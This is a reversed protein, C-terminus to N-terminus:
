GGGEGGAGEAEAAVRKERFTTYKTSPTYGTMDITGTKGELNPIIFQLNAIKEDTYDAKGLLVRVGGFFLTMNESSDFFIKDATLDYKGLLQAVDLIREFIEENDTHLKEHLIIQDFSLGRVEPVGKIVRKSAEVVTGDRTFYVRQGVYEVYGAIAKEYVKIRITEHDITEVDMKDVLNIDDISKNRYLFSLYLSNHGLPGRMVMESIEEDTYQTNGSVYVKSVRFYVLVFVAAGLLAILLIYLAIRIRKRM